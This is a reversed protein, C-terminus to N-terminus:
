LATISLHLIISNETSRTIKLNEMILIFLFSYHNFINCSIVHSNLIFKNELWIFYIEPVLLFKLHFQEITLRNQQILITLLLKSCTCIITQNALPPIPNTETVKFWNLLFYFPTHPFCGAPACFQDTPTHSTLHAGQPVARSSRQQSKLSTRGVCHNTYTSCHVELIEM